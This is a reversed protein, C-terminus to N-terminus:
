VYTVETILVQMTYDVTPKTGIAWFTVTGGDNSAMLITESNQLSVIQQASPQLDIKSTATISNIAVEQSWPNTAGTWNAAPLTVTTIKPKSAAISNVYETTALTKANPDDQGTGGVKVDGAFWGVGNWSVTHANSRKNDATGNGVIHAYTGRVNKAGVTDIINWEGQVHQSESNATTKWGESHSYNGAATTGTGEAHSGYDGSAVTRYGEAHSDIGSATTRNGESHSYEGSATANFGEAHAYVGSATTYFGEAHSYYGSADNGGYENFIEAGEGSGKKGIMTPLYKEDIKHCIEVLGSLSIIHSDGELTTVMLLGGTLSMTSIESQNYCLICFPELTDEFGGGFLSLNGIYSIGEQEFIRAICDYSEGDIVVTYTNGNIFVVGSDIYDSIYMGEESYLAITENDIFTVYESTAWHTRNQIYAPNTEDNVSWDPQVSVYEKIQELTMGTLTECDKANIQKRQLNGETDVYDIHFSGDDTCFYAYGDHLPQTDLSTRSGMFPKFLAM